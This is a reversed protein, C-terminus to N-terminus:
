LRRSERTSTTKNVQVVEGVAARGVQRGAGFVRSGV